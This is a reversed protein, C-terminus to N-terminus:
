SQPCQEAERGRQVYRGQLGSWVPRAEVSVEYASLDELDELQGADARAPRRCEGRWGGRCCRYCECVVAEARSAEELVVAQETLAAQSEALMRGAEDGAVSGRPTMGVEPEVLGGGFFDNVEYADMEDGDLHYSGFPVAVVGQEAVNSGEAVNVFGEANNDGNWVAAAEEGHAPAGPFFVAAAANFPGSSGAPLVGLAQQARTALSALLQAQVQVDPLAAALVLGPAGLGEAPKLEIALRQLAEVVLDLVVKDAAGLDSRRWLRRAAAGLAAAM